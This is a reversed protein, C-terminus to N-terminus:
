QAVSRHDGHHPGSRGPGRPRQSLTVLVLELARPTGRVSAAAIQTEVLLVAASRHRPRARALARCDLRGTTEGARVAGGRERAGREAAGTSCGTGALLATSAPM